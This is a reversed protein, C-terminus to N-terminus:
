PRHTVGTVFNSFHCSVGHKQPMEMCVYRLSEVCLLWILSCSTVACTYIYSDLAFSELPQSSEQTQQTEILKNFTTKLSTASRDCRFKWRLQLLHEQLRSQVQRDQRSTSPMPRLQLPSSRISIAIVYKSIGPGKFLSPIAMRTSKPLSSCGAGADQLLQQTSM